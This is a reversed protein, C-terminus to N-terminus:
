AETAMAFVTSSYAGSGMKNRALVRVYYIRGPILGEITTALQNTTKRISGYHFGEEQNLEM